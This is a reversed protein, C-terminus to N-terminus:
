VKELEKWLAQESVHGHEVVREFVRELDHEVALYECELAHEFEQQRIWKCTEKMFFTRALCHELGHKM